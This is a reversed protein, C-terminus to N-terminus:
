FNVEVATLLNYVHSEPLVDLCVASLFQDFVSDSIHYIRRHCM